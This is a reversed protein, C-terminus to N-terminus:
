EEGGKKLFYCGNCVEKCLAAFGYSAPNNHPRQCEKGCPDFCYTSDDVVLLDDECWNLATLRHTKGLGGKLFEFYDGRKSKRIKVPFHHEGQMCDWVTMDLLANYPIRKGNADEFKTYNM